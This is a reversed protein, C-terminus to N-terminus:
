KKEEEWRSLGCDLFNLFREKDGVDDYGQPKNLVKEDPTILVYLPQTNSKFNQVQFDAWKNGINRILNGKETRYPEIKERDDVYLSVLVYDEGLRKKVEDEKWVNEEMKRCNVCGHGTFDIMIPLNRDKAFALAEDYDKFCRINQPCDPYTMDAENRFFNYTVPPAIGSLVTLPQYTFLGHALYAVFALSALGTIYRGKTIEPKGYDLPLKLFGLMYAAMGLFVLLWLGLFLEIKLIGMHYVLDATSLFKLALALELFGLFVKVTNMWGGSKPLNNLWSPFMAFLAFPLALATSFGLMGVLPKVPIRGLITAGDGDATQALLTGIIPGTCSFSVLSLTFAMFFIGLLGGKDSASDTWTSWSSPLTLEFYGFFSFAFAVFVFFFILNFLAGTSWLNLTDAGLTGTVVMGLTVFIAIISLGYALASGIAKARNESRKTFFGVTIPIMPFICPTLLAIFGSGLGLLFVWLNSGFDAAGEGKCNEYAYEYNFRTGDYQIAGTPAVVATKEAVSDPTASNDAIWEEEKGDEETATTEQNEAEKAAKEKAQALAELRAEKKLMDETPTIKSPLEISFGVRQPALIVNDDPQGAVYNLDGKISRSGKEIKIRQTFAVQNKYRTLAVGFKSDVNRVPTTAETKIRSYPVLREDRNDYEFSLPMPGKPVSNPSYLEWGDKVSAKFTVDYEDKSVRVGEVKWQVPLGFKSSTTNNVVGTAPKVPASEVVPKTEVKVPTEKQVVPKDNDIPKNIPKTKLSFETYTPALCKSDNCTMFEWGGKITYVRSPDDVKIPQKFTVTQAYKTVNMKFVSDFGTKKNGSEQTKGVKQVGSPMKFDFSTPIPGDDSELYQSYVYWGSQITGTFVIEYNNDSVHRIYNKWTVPNEVQASLFSATFVLLLVAITRFLRM